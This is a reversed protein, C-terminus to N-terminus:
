AAMWMTNVEFVELFVQQWGFGFGLRDQQFSFITPIPHFDAVILAPVQHPVFQCPLICGLVNGLVVQSLPHRVCAFVHLFHLLLLLHFLKLLLHFFLVLQYM